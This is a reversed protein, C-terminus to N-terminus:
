RAELWGAIDELGEGQDVRLLRPAGTEKRFWTYQRKAYARTAQHVELQAQELSYEGELFRVVEKYGISQLATTMGPFRVRLGRVEEVLGSEFMEQTRRSLRPELWEFPPWLIFKKYRFRPELRPANAPPAGTRRLIEVARVARRPNKQVRAADEPSAAELEELLPGIGQAEVAEWLEAQLLPDPEPLDYLGDSLARIYYGTGGVVLPLNGREIVGQIAAEAHRLYEAVSFGQDPELLDILHHRVRSREEPSPKATGIDMGRYVMSADASVVELGFREALRLALATKGTATAGALVAVTPYHDDDFM